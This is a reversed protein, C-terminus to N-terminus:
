IRNTFGIAYFVVSKAGMELLTLVADEDIGVGRTYIDDILLINRDRIESELIRCTDKLIGPYPMKGENQYHESRIHTTKTTVTRVIYLTGDELSLTKVVNSITHRFLKQESSYEEEAKARPIVCVVFDDSGSLTVIKTIDKQLVNGLQECAGRLERETKELYQNKLVLIFDPNGPQGIGRYFMSCFADVNRGTDYLPMNFKILGGTNLKTLEEQIANLRMEAFNRGKESLELGVIEAKYGEKELIMKAGLIYAKLGAPTWEELNKTMRYDHIMGLEKVFHCCQRILQSPYMSVGKNEEFFLYYQKKDYKSYIIGTVTVEIREM